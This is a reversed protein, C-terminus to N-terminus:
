SLFKFIDMDSFFNAKNFGNVQLKEEEIEIQM